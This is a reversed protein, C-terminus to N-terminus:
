KVYLFAGFHGHSFSIFVFYGILICMEAPFNRSFPSFQILCELKNTWYGSYCALCILLEFKSFFVRVFFRHMKKFLFLFALKIQCARKLLKATQLLEFSNLFISNMKTIKIPTDTCFCQGCKFNMKMKMKRAFQIFEYFKNFVSLFVSLQVSIEIHIISNVFKLIIQKM